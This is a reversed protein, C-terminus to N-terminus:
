TFCRGRFRRAPLLREPQLDRPRLHSWRSCRPVRSEKSHVVWRHYGEVCRGSRRVRATLSGDRAGASTGCGQASISTRTCWRTQHPDAMEPVGPRVLRPRADSPVTLQHGKNVTDGAHERLCRCSRRIHGTCRRSLPSCGAGAHMTLCRDVVLRRLELFRAPAGADAAHAVALDNRAQSDHLLRRREAAPHKRSPPSARLRRRFVKSPMVASPRRCPSPQPRGVGHIPARAGCGRWKAVGRPRIVGLSLPRLLDQVPV